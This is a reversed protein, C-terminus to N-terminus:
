IMETRDGIVQKKRLTGRYNKPSMGAYRTFVRSFYAPDNFGVQLAIDSISNKAETLLVKAQEIRLKAIYVPISVGVRRRFLHSLTSVSCHCAEAISEEDCATEYYLGIYSIADSVIANHLYSTKASVPKFYHNAAISAFALSLCNAIVGLATPLIIGIDPQEVPIQDFYLQLAKSSELLQSSRCTRRILGEAIFPNTQFVGAHVSGVPGNAGPIPVIYEKVGLHCIGCFGEPCQIAKRQLGEHMSICRHYINLDSKVYMCFSNGHSLFHALSHDLESDLPIFGLFDKICITIGFHDELAHMYRILGDYRGKM